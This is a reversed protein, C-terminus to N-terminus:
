PFHLSAPQFVLVPQLATISARATDKVRSTHAALNPLAKESLSLVWSLKGELLHIPNCQEVCIWVNWLIPLLCAGKKRM